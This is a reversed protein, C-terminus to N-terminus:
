DLVRLRVRGVLELLPLLESPTEGELLRLHTADARHQGFSPDTAEWRGATWTEVWTHWAFGQLQASYVLGNVIRAPIGAARLLAALLASQGQCEGRRNGLVDLASFADAPVPEINGHVWDALAHAVHDSEADAAITEALRRVALSESQVTASPGAHRPEVRDRPDLHDRRIECQWRGPERRECRQGSGPAPAFDPPLNAIEVRLREIERPSDLPPAVKVLSFDLLAERKTVAAQLLYDRARAAPELHAILAGHLSRELEPLGASNIWTTVEHGHLRTSVRWATGEFLRSRELAEVRQEVEALTQTEGDWVRYRWQAGRSLGDLVPKLQIVSTPWLTGDLPILAQSREGGRTVQMRLGAAERAGELELVSGDIDYRYAFRQLQLDGAVEDTAALAVRKTFGLLRLTMAARSEIRWGSGLPELRLQTFGIKEGNLVIGTWYERPLEAVALRLSADPADVPTFYLRQCAGILACACLLLFRSLERARRM